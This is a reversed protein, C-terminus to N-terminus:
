ISTYQNNRMRQTKDQSKALTPPSISDDKREIFELAKWRSAIDGEEASVSRKLSYVCLVTYM